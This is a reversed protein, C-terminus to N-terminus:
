MDKWCAPCMFYAAHAGRGQEPKFSHWGESAILFGKAHRIALMADSFGSVFKQFKTHRKKGWCTDCWVLVEFSDKIILGGDTTAERARHGM